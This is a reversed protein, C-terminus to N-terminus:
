LASARSIASIRGGDGAAQWPLRRSQLLPADSCRGSCVSCTTRTRTSRSGSGSSFRHLLGADYRSFERVWGAPGVAPHLHVYGPAAAAAASLWTTWAGKPGPARVQGYLHTHVGRRALDVLWDGDLGHPRGVV